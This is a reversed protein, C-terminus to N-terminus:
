AHETEAEPEHEVHSSAEAEGKDEEGKDSDASGEKVVIWEGGEGDGEMSSMSLDKVESPPLGPSGEESGDDRLLLKKLGTDCTDIDTDVSSALSLLSSSMSDPLAESPPVDAPPTAPNFYSTM